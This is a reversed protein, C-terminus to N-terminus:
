VDWTRDYFKNNAFFHKSVRDNSDNMYKYPFKATLSFQCFKGTGPYGQAKLTPQEDEESDQTDRGAQDPRVRSSTKGKAIFEIAGKLKINAKQPNDAANVEPTAGTKAGKEMQETPTKM